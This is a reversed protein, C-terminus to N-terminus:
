FTIDRAYCNKMTSKQRGDDNGPLLVSPEPLLLLLSLLLLLLLLLVFSPFEFNKADKFLINQLYNLNM